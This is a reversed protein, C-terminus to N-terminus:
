SYPISSMQVRDQPATKLVSQIHTHVHPDTHASVSLLGQQAKGAAAAMETMMVTVAWPARGELIVECGGKKRKREPVECTHNPESACERKRERERKRGKQREREGEQQRRTTPVKRRTTRDQMQLQQFMQHYSQPCAWPWQTACSQTTTAAGPTTCHLLGSLGMKKVKIGRSDNLVTRQEYCISLSSMSFKVSHWLPCLYYETLIITM